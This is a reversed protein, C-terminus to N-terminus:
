TRMPCSVSPSSPSFDACTPHAGRRNAGVKYVKDYASPVKASTMAARVAALVSEDMNLHSATLRFSSAPASLSALRPSALDSPAWAVKSYVIKEKTDVCM